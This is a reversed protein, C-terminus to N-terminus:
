ARRLVIRALAVSLAANLLCWAAGLPANVPFHHDGLLATAVLTSATGISVGALPLRAGRVGLLLVTLGFPVAFSGLPLFAHVAPAILLDWDALPRALLDVVGVTRPAIFPAFFLLGPGTLLAPVLLRARWPTAITGDRRRVWRFVVFLVLALSLLRAVVRHSAARAVAAGADLVGAGHTVTLASSPAVVRASALLHAEVAEPRTVGLSMLLAAAGAVHPSAMSTGSYRPFQECGNHGGDCVTQQIVDVGPAAIDVEPGRSSFWALDDDSDTASVGVVGPSAGPYEVPGASNGAAAVVVVGRSRAHAVAKEVVRSRFPGGLSLNIVQAGNDAAWRIGDAVQAFTGWGDGSLVKVPMLRADFAIGAAGISNNTSQAITGAVHTGHGNDDAVHERRNVFDFGPACRTSGLDSAKQFPGFTECAIGTDVVAVTVGRGTSFDWARQARVRTFNWQESLLPDNPVFAAFVRHNPEVIEVRRSRELTRLLEDLRTPAARVVVTATRAFSEAPFIEVALTALIDRAEPQDVDDEFDVLLEGRAEFESVAPRELPGGALASRGATLLTVLALAAPLPRVVPCLRAGRRPARVPLPPGDLPIAM